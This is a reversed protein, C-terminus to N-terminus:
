GYGPKISSYNLSSSSCFVDGLILSSILLHPGHGRLRFHHVCLNPAGSPGVFLGAFDAGLGPADRLQLAPSSLLVGCFQPAQDPHPQTAGTSTLSGRLQRSPPGRAALSELTPARGAPLPGAARSSSSPGPTAQCTVADPAPPSERTPTGCRRLPRLTPGLYIFCCPLLHLRRAEIVPTAPM